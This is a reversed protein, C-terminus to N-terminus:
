NFANRKRDELSEGPPNVLEQRFPAHLNLVKHSVELITQRQDVKQLDNGGLAQTFEVCFGCGAIVKQFVVTKGHTEDFLLTELENTNTRFVNHVSLEFKNQTQDPSEDQSVLDVNNTLTGGLPFQQFPYPLLDLGVVDGLGQAIEGGIPLVTLGDTSQNVGELGADQGRFVHARQATISKLIRLLSAFGGKLFVLDGNKHIGSIHDVGRILQRTHGVDSSETVPGAFFSAPITFLKGPLLPSSIGRGAVSMTRTQLLSLGEGGSVELNNSLVAEILLQSMTTIDKIHGDMTGIAVDLGLNGIVAVALVGDLVSDGLCALVGNADLQPSLVDLTRGVGDLSLTGLSAVRIGSAGTYFTSAGTLISGEPNMGDISFALGDLMTTIGEDNLNLTGLLDSIGFQLVVVITGEITGVLDVCGAVVKDVDGEVIFGDLTGGVLHENLSGSSAVGPGLTRTEFSSLCELGGDEGDVGDIGIALGSIITAIRELDLDSTGFLQLGLDCVVVITGVGNFVVGGLGTVVVDVGGEVILGDLIGGLLHV